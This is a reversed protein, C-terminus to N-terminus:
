RVLQATVYIYKLTVRGPNSVNHVVEAPIYIFANQSAKIKKNKGYYVIARGQLIIIVEEKDTTKHEGIAEQPKLSVLGSRLGFTKNKDGLLRLFRQRGKLQMCFVKGRKM